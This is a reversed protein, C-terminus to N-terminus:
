GPRSATRQGPLHSRRASATRRWRCGPWPRARALRRGPLRRHPHLRRNRHRTRPSSRATRARTGRGQGRLPDAKSRAPAPRPGESAAAPASRARPAGFAPSHLPGTNGREPLASGLLMAAPWSRPSRHHARCAQGPWRHQAGSGKFRSRHDKFQRQGSTNAPPQHQTRVLTLQAPLKVPM